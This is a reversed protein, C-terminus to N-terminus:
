NVGKRGQRIYLLERRGEKDLGAIIAAESFSAARFTFSRGEDEEDSLGREVGEVGM